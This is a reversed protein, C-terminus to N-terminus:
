RRRPPARASSSSRRARTTWITRGPRRTSSAHGQLDAMGTGSAAHLGRRAPLLGPVDLPLERHLPGDRRHRHAHRRHDLPQRAARGARRTSRTAPLPHPPALDNEDIVEGMYKLIEAATAIPASTWPKFRYGFTYLDSDSRIGPIATPSGPAASARRRKSCSSAAHGPMAQHPSLRRRHRLHGRRRDAVDFHETQQAAALAPRPLTGTDPMIPPREGTHVECHPRHRGQRDLKACPPLKDAYRQRRRGAPRRRPPRSWRWLGAPEQMPPKRVGSPMRFGEGFRRYNGGIRSPGTRM